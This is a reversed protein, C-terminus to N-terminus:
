GVQCNPYRPIRPDDRSRGSGCQPRGAEFCSQRYEMGHRSRWAGSVRQWIRSGIPVPRRGCGQADDNTDYRRPRSPWAGCHSLAPHRGPQDRRRHAPWGIRAAAGTRYAGRRLCCAAGPRHPVAGAGAVRADPRRDPSDETKSRAAAIEPDTVDNCFTRAGFCPLYTGEEDEFSIVDVGVTFEVAPGRREPSRSRTSSVWHATSGAAWRCRTPTLVSSFPASQRLIAATSMAPATSAPPLAPKRSANWWGAGRKSTSRLCPSGISAPASRASHRSSACIALIRREGNIELM